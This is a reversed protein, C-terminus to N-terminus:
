EKRKYIGIKRLITINKHLKDEFPNKVLKSYIGLM